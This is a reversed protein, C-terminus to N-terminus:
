YWVGLADAIEQMENEALESDDTQEIYYGLDNNFLLQVGSKSMYNTTWGGMNSRLEEVISKIKQNM